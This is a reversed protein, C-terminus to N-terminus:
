LVPENGPLIDSQHNAHIERSEFWHKFRQEVYWMGTFMILALVTTFAAVAYLGFGTAIGLAAAIWLGAATTVGHLSDRHFIILGGGIFGIGTIIAAAVQMPEFNVVGIYNTDVYSGVIVFLCAGLSVLGFTRTGAPQKAIVSRETGVIAGLVMAVLLKLLMVSQPDIFQTAGHM